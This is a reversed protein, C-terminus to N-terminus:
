DNGTERREREALVDLRFQSAKTAKMTRTGHSDSITMRCREGPRYLIEVNCAYAPGGDNSM